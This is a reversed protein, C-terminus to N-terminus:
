MPAGLVATTRGRRGPYLLFPGPVAVPAATLGPSATTVREMWRELGGAQDFIRRAEAYAKQCRECAVLSSPPEFVIAPRNVRVSAITAALHLDVDTV